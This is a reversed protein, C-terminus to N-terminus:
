IKENTSCKLNELLDNITPVNEFNRIKCIANFFALASFNKHRMIDNHRHYPSSQNLCMLEFILKTFNKGDKEAEQITLYTFTQAIGEHLEIDTPNKYQFTSKKWRNGNNDPFWHAMWHGVEHWLVINFVVEKIIEKDITPDKEFFDAKLNKSFNEINNKYLIIEGSKMQDETKYEGLVDFINDIKNGPYIKPEEESIKYYPEMSDFKSGGFFEENIEMLSYDFILENLDFVKYKDLLEFPQTNIINNM